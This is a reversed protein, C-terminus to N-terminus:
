GHLLRANGLGHADLERPVRLLLQALDGARGSFGVRLSSHRPRGEPWTSARARRPLAADAAAPRPLRSGLGPLARRVLDRLLGDDARRGRRSPRKPDQGEPLRSLLLAPGGVFA